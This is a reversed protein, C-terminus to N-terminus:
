GSIHEQSGFAGAESKGKEQGEKQRQGEEEVQRSILHLINTLLTLDFVLFAYHRILYGVHPLGLEARAKTM